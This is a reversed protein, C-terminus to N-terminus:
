INIYIKYLVDQCICVKFINLRGHQHHPCVHINTAINQDAEDCEIEEREDSEPALYLSINWSKGRKKQVKTIDSLVYSRIFFFM